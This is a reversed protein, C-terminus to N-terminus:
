PDAACWWLDNPKIDFVNKLTTSTYVQYGGHTHVLGKPKGTTGSTYLIFLPDEADLVETEIETSADAM